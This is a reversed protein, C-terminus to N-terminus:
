SSVLVRVNSTNVPITRTKNEEIGFERTIQFKTTLHEKSCVM